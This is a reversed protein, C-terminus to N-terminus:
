NIKRQKELALLILSELEEELYFYRILVWNGRSPIDYDPYYWTDLGYRTGNFNKGLKLVLNKGHLFVFAENKYELSPSSKMKGRTINAVQIFKLTIEEFKQEYHYM